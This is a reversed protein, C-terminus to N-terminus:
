EAAQALIEPTGATHWADWYGRWRAALAGPKEALVRRGVAQAKAQLDLRHEEVLACFRDLDISRALTDSEDRLTNRFVALNHDDGLLDSLLKMDHERAAMAEPWIGCLLRTHYWHDKVRKRWEHLQGDDPHSASCKMGRRAAKLTRKLGGEIADFGREDLHWGDIRRSAEEMRDRFTELKGAIDTDNRVRRARGLLKQRLGRYPAMGGKGVRRKLDEFSEVLAAADRARSLDKAADRFFANKDGYGTLAPRVLRLLGRVKKMRKRVQHVTRSGDLDEDDIEEIARTVERRAIRRVGDQVGEDGPKFRYAM